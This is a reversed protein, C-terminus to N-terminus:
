FQVKLGISPFIGINEEAVVQYSQALQDKGAQLYYGSINKRNLLNLVAYSYTVPLGFLTSQYDAQVDLRHYIPLTEANHEGYVAVRYDPQYPHPKSGIIPTYKAGSRVTLRGGVTWAENLQYNLVLNAVLPTDLYYATTVQRRLDTRDAQSWSLSAWGHWGDSRAKRLLLEVGYARGASDNSYHKAQDTDLATLALPLQTMKKLYSDASFSWDTTFQYHLGFAFHNAKPQRLEPNGLEPIKKDVEGFQTYQGAKLELKLQETTQWSLSTRPLTHKEKQQQYNQQELRVGVQWLWDDALQWHETIFASDTRYSIKAQQQLRDGRQAFCDPQHDTCFYPIIDFRYDIDRQQQELGLELKHETAFQWLNQLQLTRTKDKFQLFQKDGYGTDEQNNLQQLSLQLQYDAHPQWLYQLLQSNFDTKLRADGISDPDTRGQESNKAISLRAQDSAGAATLTLKHQDSPQWLYRAQYDSSKPPQYLTVDDDLEDGEGFFYQLNSQRWSTYFRQNETIEGELLLGSQLFSLDAVGGLEQARPDRLKAAFVGGIANGYQAGFAAPHLQFDQLLNENLISNGFMHFLYGAPLGDLLFANDDPSSGRVAPQGGYDGDAYVVGPLSFFATLPDNMVGAVALLEATQPTVETLDQQKRGKVEIREIPSDAPAPTASAEATTSTAAVAGSTCYGALLLAILSPKLAAHKPIYSRLFGHSDTIMPSYQLPLM